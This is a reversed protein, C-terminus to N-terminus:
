KEIGLIEKRFDEDSLYNKKYKQRQNIDETKLNVSVKNFSFNASYDKDKIHSMSAIVKNGTEIAKNLVGCMTQNCVEDIFIMDFHNIEFLHINYEAGESYFYVQANNPLHLKDSISGASSKNWLKLFRQKLDNKSFSNAAFVGIKVNGKSAKEVIYELMRSTYGIQRPKCIVTYPLAEFVPILDNFYNYEFKEEPLIETLHKRVADNVMKVLEYNSTSGQPWKKWREILKQTDEGLILKFSSTALKPTKSLKSANITTLEKNRNTYEMSAHIYDILSM